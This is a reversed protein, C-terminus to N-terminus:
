RPCYSGTALTEEFCFLFLLQRNTTHHVMLISKSTSSRCDPDLHIKSLVLLVSVTYFLLTATFSWLQVSHIASCAPWARDGCPGACWPQRPRIQWNDKGSVTNRRYIELRQRVM